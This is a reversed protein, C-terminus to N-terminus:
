PAISPNSNTSKKTLINRKAIETEIKRRFVRRFDQNQVCYLYFLLPGQLFIFISHVFSPALSEKKEIGDAINYLLSFLWPIGLVATLIVVARFTVMTQRNTALPKSQGGIPSSSPLNKRDASGIKWVVIGVWVLIVTNIFLSLTVPIGLAFSAFESTTWCFDYKKYKLLESEIINSNNHATKLREQIVRYPETAKIFRDKSLELAAVATMLVLPVGWTLSAAICLHKKPFNLSSQCVKRYIMVGEMLVWLVSTMLFYLHLAAAAECFTRDLPDLLAVGVGATLFTHRLLLSTTLNMQIEFRKNGDKLAKRFRLLLLFTAIFFCTAILTTGFNLPVLARSHPLAEMTTKAAIKPMTVDNFKCECTVISLNHNVVECDNSTWKEQWQVCSLETSNRVGIYRDNAFKSIKRDDLMNITIKITIGNKIFVRTLKGIKRSTYSSYFSTVIDDSIYEVTRLDPNEEFYDFSGKTSFLIHTVSFNELKTINIRWKYDLTNDAMQKENRINLEDTDKPLPWQTLVFYNYGSWEKKPKLEISYNGCQLLTTKLRQCEIGEKLFLQASATHLATAALMLVIITICTM